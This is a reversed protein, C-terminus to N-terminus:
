LGCRQLRLARDDDKCPKSVSTIVHATVGENVTMLNSYFGVEKKDASQLYVLDGNLLPLTEDIILTDGEDIFYPFQLDISATICYM